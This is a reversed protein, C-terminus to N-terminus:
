TKSKELRKRKYTLVEHAQGRPGSHNLVLYSLMHTALNALGRSEKKNKKAPNHEYDPIYTYARKPISKKTKVFLTLYM